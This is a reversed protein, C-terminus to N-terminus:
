GNWKGISLCRSLKWIKAIIFLAAMFMRMCTKKHVYAPLYNPTFNSPWPTSKCDTKYSVNKKKLFKIEISTYNVYVTINTEPTYYISKVIRYM